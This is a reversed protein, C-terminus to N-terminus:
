VTEPGIKILNCRTISALTIRAFLVDRGEGNKTFGSM